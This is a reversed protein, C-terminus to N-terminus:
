IEMRRVSSRVEDITCNLLVSKERISKAMASFADRQGAEDSSTLLGEASKVASKVAQNEVLEELSELEQITDISLNLAYTLQDYLKEYNQKM